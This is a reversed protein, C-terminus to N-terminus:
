LISCPGVYRYQPDVLRAQCQPVKLCYELLHVSVHLLDCCKLADNVTALRNLIGALGHPHEALVVLHSYQEPPIPPHPITEVYPLNDEELGPIRYVLEMVANANNPNALWIHTYVDRLLLQPMLIQNECVMELRMDTTLNNETCIYNIVDSITPGFGRTNSMVVERIRRVFLYEEQDRWVSLRVPFPPIETEIPCVPACLQEL